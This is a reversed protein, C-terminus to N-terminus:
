SEEDHMSVFFRFRVPFTETRKKSCVEHRIVSRSVGFASSRDPMCCPTKDALIQLPARSLFVPRLQIPCQRQLLLFTLWAQDETAPASLHGHGRPVSLRFTEGLCPGELCVVALLCEMSYMM